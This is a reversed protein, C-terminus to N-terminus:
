EGWKELYRAYGEQWAPTNPNGVSGHILAIPWTGLRLGAKECARCFDVDYFHFTFRTDFGVDANRLTSTQAALLVGDLLKVEAPVEGFLSIDVKGNADTNAVGGSLQDPEDWNFSADRFAWMPQKPLRRKNGVVGIIDFRSLGEILRQKLFFDNFWVDDHVFVLIDEPDAKALAANYVEPLGRRNEYAIEAVIGTYQLGELGRGLLTRAPFTSQTERTASVIRIAM